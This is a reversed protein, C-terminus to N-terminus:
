PASSLGFPLAQFQYLPNKWLFQLFPQHTKAMPITFYADKLDLKVLWDGELLLDRLLHIGEMKFHRYVLFKNLHRLNRVPRWGREKKEVLFLTSRFRLAEMPVEIIAGKQLMSSIEEEVIKQHDLNLPIDRPFSTQTPIETFDITFEGVTNLVWPVQIILKWNQSFFRLRGGVKQPFSPIPLPPLISVKPTTLAPPVQLRQQSPRERKTPLVTSSKLRPIRPMRQWLFPIKLLAKPQLPRFFPGMKQGTWFPQLQLSKKM